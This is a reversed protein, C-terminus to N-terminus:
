QPQLEGFFTDAWTKLDETEVWADYLGKCGMVESVEIGLHVDMLHNATIKYAKDTVRLLKTGKHHLSQCNKGYWEVMGYGMGIEEDYQLKANASLGLSLVTAVVLTKTLKKM